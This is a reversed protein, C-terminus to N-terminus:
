DRVLFITGAVEDGECAIGHYNLSLRIDQRVGDGDYAGMCGQSRPLDKVIDKYHYEFNSIQDGEIDFSLDALPGLSAIDALPFSIDGEYHTENGEIDITIPVLNGRFELTGSYGASLIGIDRIQISPTPDSLDDSGVMIIQARYSNGNQIEEGGVDQLDAPLFTSFTVDSSSFVSFYQSPTLDDRVESLSIGSGTKILVIRFEDGDSVADTSFDVRFDSANNNNDLDYLGISSIEVPDPLDVMEDPDDKSCSLLFVFLVSIM